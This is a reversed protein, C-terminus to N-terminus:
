RPPNALRPTASANDIVDTPFDCLELSQKVASIVEHRDWGEAIADAILDKVHIDMMRRLDHVRTSNRYLRSPELIM